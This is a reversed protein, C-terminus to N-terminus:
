GFCRADAHLAKNFYVATAVRYMTYKVIFMYPITLPGVNDVRTMAMQLFILRRHDSYFRFFERGPAKKALKLTLGTQRLLLKGCHVYCMRLRPKLAGRYSIILDTRQQLLRGLLSLYDMIPVGDVFFCVMIRFLTDHYPNLDRHKSRYVAPPHFGRLVNKSAGRM